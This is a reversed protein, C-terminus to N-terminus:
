AAVTDPRVGALVAAILALMRRPEPDTLLVRPPVEAPWDTGPPALVAAAGHRVADPIFERGDVFAGPVAVFLDGARVQRSDATIQGIDLGAVVRPLPRSPGPFALIQRYIDSLLM